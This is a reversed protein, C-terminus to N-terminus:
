EVKIFYENDFHDYNIYIDLSKVFNEFESTEYAALCKLVPNVDNKHEVNLYLRESLSEIFIRVENYPNYIVELTDENQYIDYGGWQAGYLWTAKRLMDVIDYEFVAPHEDFANFRNRKKPDHEPLYKYLCSLLGYQSMQSRAEEIIESKTAAYSVLGLFAAIFIAIVKM